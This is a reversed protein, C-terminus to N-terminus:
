FTGTRRHPFYKLFPHEENRFCLPSPDGFSRGPCPYPAPNFEKFRSRLSPHLGAQEFVIKGAGYGATNIPFDKFQTLQIINKSKSDFSFLNFEGNRDSLFYIVDGIWMPRWDNCGGDPKPIKEVALTKMDCIWIYSETGGRYNKWQTFANFDPNYALKKGDPSYSGYVGNPLNLKEPFGGEVPVLFFRPLARSFSERTSTFLVSKGDPTFGRTFDGEPHWTLRTPVGGEAPITFVDMNGDYQGTFAITKGDPSFNPAFEAGENSTLRMVDSGDLKSTWLDNSYVFVIHDSSVSPDTMMRSEGPNQASIGNLLFLFFIVLFSCQKKM